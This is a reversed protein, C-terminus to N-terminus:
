SGALREVIPAAAAMADAGQVVFYSADWRDRNAELQECIEDTTGIWAHPYDGVDDAELAFMPAMQEIVSKRDDTIVCAFILFNIELDDYRDGAAGRVWGLKRDTVEAAGDRSAARNVRGARIAPNVGIIDAEQAALALVRPAGGGVLLPPHPRQVPKPRGDLESIKYHAGEYNFPGEAFLGKLVAIGEALRDVRVAAPDMPIGAHDYDSAMWGAGIGLELRGDSLLDVTAAEKATVVPHKYDNDLVLSGVRLRDTAAAAAMLAPIPALNDEFHDPAFLTSFGLDEAKRALEAWEAGSRANALQIGFRFPRPHGM